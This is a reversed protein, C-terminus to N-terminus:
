PGPGLLKVQVKMGPGASAQKESGPDGSRGERWGDIEQGSGPLSASSTPVPSPPQSQPLSGPLSPSPPQSQPAQPRRSGPTRLAAVELRAGSHSVSRPPRLGWQPQILRHEGGPNPGRTLQLEAAASSTPSPSAPQSPSLWSSGASPLCLGQGWPVPTPLGKATGPVGWWRTQRGELPGLWRSATGLGCLHVPDEWPGTRTEWTKM